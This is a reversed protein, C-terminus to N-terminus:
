ADFAAIVKDIKQRSMPSHHMAGVLELIYRAARTYTCGKTLPEMKAPDSLDEGQVTGDTYVYFYAVDEDARNRLHFMAIDYGHEGSQFTVAAYDSSYEASGLDNAKLFKDLSETFRKLNAISESATEMAKELTVVTEQTM